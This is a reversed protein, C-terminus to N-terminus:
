ASERKAYEPYAELFSRTPRWENDTQQGAKKLHNYVWQRSRHYDNAIDSVNVGNRYM